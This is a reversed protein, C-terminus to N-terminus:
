LHRDFLKLLFMYYLSHIFKFFLLLMTLLRPDFECVIPHIFTLLKEHIITRWQALPLSLFINELIGLDVNLSRRRVM